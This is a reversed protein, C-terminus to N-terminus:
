SQPPLTADLYEALHERDRIGSGSSLIAERLSKITVDPPIQLKQEANRVITGFLAAARDPKHEVFWGLVREAQPNLTIALGDHHPYDGLERVMGQWIIWILDDYPITSDLHLAATWGAQRAVERVAQESRHPRAWRRRAAPQAWFNQFLAETLRDWLRRLGVPLTDDETGALTAAASDRGRQEIWDQVVPRSWRKRGDTVQPLPLDAEGRALYARLTSAAIGAQQAFEEIGLLATDTLEPANLTVVCRDLPLADPRTSRHRAWQALDHHWQAAPVPNSPQFHVIKSVRGLTGDDSGDLLDEATITTPLRVPRRMYTQSAWNIVREPRYWTEGDWWYGGARRLLPRQTFWDHYASGTDSNRYLTVSRGHEPHYRVIWGFAHNKPDTTFATWEGTSDDHDHRGWMDTGRHRGTAAIGLPDEIPIHGDDVFPLNPIPHDTRIGNAVPQGESAMKAGDNTNYM